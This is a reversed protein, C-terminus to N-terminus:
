VPIRYRCCHEGCAISSERVLPVGLLTEYLREEQLCIQSYKRAVCDIPCNYETLVFSGDDEEVWECMYGQAALLNALTEVKERRSKDALHPGLEHLMREHRQELVEELVMAGGIHELYQLLDLVLRDYQKPFRAEAEPTLVYLNSPRGIQRRLGSVSVLKDRELIALHQRIGVAGIGLHESLELATMEGYRRLLQLISRRTSGQEKRETTITDM